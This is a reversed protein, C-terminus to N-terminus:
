PDHFTLKYYIIGSPNYILGRLDKCKPDGMTKGPRISNYILNKKYDNFFTHTFLQANFPTPYKRANLTYRM